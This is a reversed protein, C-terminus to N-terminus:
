KKSTDTSAPPVGGKMMLKKNQHGKTVVDFAAQKAEPTMDSGTSNGGSDCGAFLCSVALVGVVIWSHQM